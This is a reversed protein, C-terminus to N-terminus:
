WPFWRTRVCHRRNHHVSNLTKLLHADHGATDDIQVRSRRVKLINMTYQLKNLQERPPLEMKEFMAPANEGPIVGECGFVESPNYYFPCLESSRREHIRPEPDRSRVYRGEEKAKEMIDPRRSLEYTAWTMMAASTEHGALMFTKIEDRLQRVTSQPLSVHDHPAM